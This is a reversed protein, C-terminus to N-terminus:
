CGQLINQLQERMREILFSSDEQPKYGNLTTILEDACEKLSSKESSVLKIEEDRSNISITVELRMTVGKALVAKKLLERM